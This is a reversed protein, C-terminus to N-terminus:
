TFFKPGYLVSWVALWVAVAVHWLWASARVPEHDRPTMQDGAVRLFALLVAVVGGVAAAGAVVLMAWFITAYPSEAPGYGLKSGAYWLGNLFALGFALTLGLGFLAHRRDAVRVGYVGWEVSAASMLMTVALTAGLYSDIVAQKPPWAPTAHRVSFYAAILAGVAMTAAVAVLLAGLNLVNRRRSRDGAPLALTTTAM